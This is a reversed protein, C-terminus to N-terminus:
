HKLKKHCCKSWDYYGSPTTIADCEEQYDCKTLVEQAAEGTPGEGEDYYRYEETIVVNKKVNECYFTEDRTEDPEPVDYLISM